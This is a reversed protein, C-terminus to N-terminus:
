KLFVICSPIMFKESISTSLRRAVMKIPAPMLVSDPIGSKRLRAANPSFVLRNIEAFEQGGLFGPSLGPPPFFCNIWHQGHGFGIGAM